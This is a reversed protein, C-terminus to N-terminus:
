DLSDCHMLEKEKKQIPQTKLGKNKDELMLNILESKEKQLAARMERDRDIDFYTVGEIITKEAKAYISLPHDSWLVVDADKGVKLSGVRDDIHLLKAPNLTVFKLAEEESVGGYKVSKAAEQNLRRSMEADDSNVAVVVGANHMIAANYPIADNVEYKYAWWDSFTSGGVGHEKMKDAVKYGELIHTFTNVNFDFKEAVKMLMNIESQVYSHCSIFREGNLIEGLVEMETDMRYSEGSKKMEDYAKARSFYDMYVQEVGMRSQPFRIGNRSRSQKVNEGLAFKIFKPTNNYVLDEASEGWKLKIIASRGGIPNASGHLIQISTVGGALNRYIDVDEDDIVDEITVEASSNHGAENISAAAIHSHEDIIGATIHKGTADIVTAGGQKLDKGIQAIKGDRILIDTNKLVGDDENTWVTANKFLLTQSKPKEKFGFGVNPYTVAYMTSSSSKSPSSKKKEASEASIKTTSFPMVDGNPLIAKGMLTKGDTTNASIRTFAKPSENSSTYTLTMWDDKYSIKSGLTQGGSKLTAKPKEITGGVTMKIQQGNISFSYDGRIDHANMTNIIHAEGQVWNEYLTTNKEFLDGSTILFNAYADPKLTGLVDSKGLLAAPVTTLAKLATEKSLGRSIATMLNAKFDKVNKLGHTSLAFAIGNKELIAPNYPGQNWSRMDSVSLTSALFPDEVDYAKQFDLPLIIAANTAKVEAVREYEDGGGVVIYQINFQDGVKDARMINSRSGAEFIQPLNHNRNLAELALDTTSSNGNEYWKADNYMQRLLAMSGMLSTPYSQRSQVSKSFSLFQASSPDLVRVSNDGQDNLAILAGTGRVIGDQISTNVAGFGLNQMGKATKNDYKFLYMAEQEPRIHDNWYFGSRSADYQPGNGRVREPKKVGFSTYMDIFSPYIFKGSLDVVTANKPEKVNKGVSVVKGEKILLSGKKIVNTPSAYITANKFLTYNTNKTAVGSNNPFYDQGLIPMSCMFILLWIVNKIM